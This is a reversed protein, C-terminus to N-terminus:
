NNGTFPEMTASTESSIGERVFVKKITLIIIKVDLLFSCHDVYWVDLEFKKTWSIANRGNVQAWGTIGPRIEHRRAQEKNYLPLYQPLLPRPGILAMDGKLVNILQPLEDISTSRVFRGVKTLRDADPLLNGHTDREDTMTKFKIVKFIKGDKGPREQTFFAGAGRNAFHLWITILLLIPWIILLVCFVIIFDIIRKLFHIYM